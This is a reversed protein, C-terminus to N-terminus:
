GRVFPIGLYVFYGALFLLFVGCVGLIGRYIKISFFKRGTGVLYAIASYWVLDGLIHASFFVWVAWFGMGLATTIYSLGLTAWWILVAPNFLSVLAGKAVIGQGGTKTNEGSLDIKVKPISKLIGYAMWFLAIGGAFSIIAKVWPIVIIENLGWVMGILLVLEVLVHGLTILPGAVAGKLLAENVTVTFLPGPILAGSLAVGFATTFLWFLSV